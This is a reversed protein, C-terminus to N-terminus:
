VKSNHKPPHDNLAKLNIKFSSQRKRSEVIKKKKRRRWKKNNSVKTRQLEADSWTNADTQSQFKSVEKQGHSPNLIFNHKNVTRCEYIDFVFTFRENIVNLVFKFNSLNM